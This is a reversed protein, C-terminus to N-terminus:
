EQAERGAQESLRTLEEDSIPPEEVALLAKAREVDREEVYITRGGAAGFEPNGLSLQSIAAIGIEALREVILDAQPQNPAGAVVKLM